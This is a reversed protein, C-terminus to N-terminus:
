FGFPNTRYSDRDFPNPEGGYYGSADYDQPIGKDVNVTINDITTINTLADQKSIGGAYPSAAQLAVSYNPDSLYLKLTAMYQEFYQQNYIELEIATKERVYQSLIFLLTKAADISARRVSGGNKTLFYDMETDSLLNFSSDTLGLELYMQDRPETAPMGSYPM